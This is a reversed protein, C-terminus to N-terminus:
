RGSATAAGELPRVFARRFLVKSKPDHNQLGVYGERGREGVFRTVEVGNLHVVYEQGVVRIRCHNWEGVPRSARKEVDKFDYVCGSRHKAGGADCIQVEYGQKVADWPSAPLDPFRVFIGSNDEARQVKWEVELEFDGFRRGTWVLLGMGGETRLIPEAGGEQPALLWKFSGPGVQRWRRRGALLDYRGDESRRPADACWRLAQHVMRRFLPHAHTPRGHGLITYFVRGQGHDRVWTVPRRRDKEGPSQGDQLLEKDHQACRHLHYFEDPLRWVKESGAMVPHHPRTVEVQIKQYAPHSRFRGGLMRDYAAWGPHSDGASHLAVYGGGGEVFALFGAKEADSWGLEGQSYALIVDYRDPLGPDALGIPSDPLNRPFPGPGQRLLHFTYTGLEALGACLAETNGQFDHYGGGAVVLVRLPRPEEEGAQARAGLPLALALALALLVPSDSNERRM